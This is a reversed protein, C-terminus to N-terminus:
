QPRPVQVAWDEHCMAASGTGLTSCLDIGGAAENGDVQAPCRCNPPCGAISLTMLTGSPKPHSTLTQTWVQVLSLRGSRWIGNGAIGAGRWAQAAHPQLAGIAAQCIGHEIEWGWGMGEARGTSWVQLATPLVMRTAGDVPVVCTYLSPVNCAKSTQMAKLRFRRAFGACLLTDALPSPSPSWSLSWCEGQELEAERQAAKESDQIVSWAALGHLPKEGATAVRRLPEESGVGDRPQLLAELSATVEWSVPQGAHLGHIVVHCRLPLCPDGQGPEKAEPVVASFLYSPEVLM